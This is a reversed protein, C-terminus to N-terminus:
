SRRRSAGALGLLGLGLIAISTPEPVSFVLPGNLATSRTASTEDGNFATSTNGVITFDFLWFINQTSADAWIDYFNNKGNSAVVSQFFTSADANTNGTDTATALWSYDVTGYMISEGLAPGGGAINLRLVQESTGAELYFLDVYGGANFVPIGTSFDGTLGSYDFSLGWDKGLENDYISPFGSPLLGDVFGNGAETFTSTPLPACLGGACAGGVLESTANSVEVDLATWSATASGDDYDTGTEIIIADALVLNSVTAIAAACLLKNLKNMKIGQKKIKMM